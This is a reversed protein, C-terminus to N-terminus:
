EQTNEASHCYTREAVSDALAPQKKARLHSIAFLKNSPECEWAVGTFRTAPWRFRMAERAAQLMPLGFALGGVMRISDHGEIQGETVTYRAGNLEASKTNSAVWVDLYSSKRAVNALSWQEVTLRSTKQSFTLRLYVNM